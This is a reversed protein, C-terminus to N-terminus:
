AALFFFLGFVLIPLRENYVKLSAVFPAIMPGVRAWFSSSGVGINRIVTPFTEASAVYCIALTGMASVRGLVNLTILPWDADTYSRFIVFIILFNYM